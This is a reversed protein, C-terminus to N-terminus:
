MGAMYVRIAVEMDIVMVLTLTLIKMLLYFSKILTIKLKLPIMPLEGGNFSIMLNTNLIMLILGIFLQSPLTLLEGFLKKSLELSTRYSWIILSIIKYCTNRLQLVNIGVLIMLRMEVLIFM